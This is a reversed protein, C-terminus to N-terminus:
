VRDTLTLAGYCMWAENIADSVSKAEQHGNAGHEDFYSVRWHNGKALAHPDVSRSVVIFVADSRAKEPVFRLGRACQRALEDIRAQKRARQVLWANVGPDFTAM